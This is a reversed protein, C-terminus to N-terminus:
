APVWKGNRIFGHNGCTRCLVSPSITLPESQEVKWAQIQGPEFSLAWAGGEFPIWGSCQTGDPRLHYDNIGTREDGDYSVFKIQHGHGIDIM